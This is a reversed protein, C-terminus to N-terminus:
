KLRSNLIVNSGATGALLAPPADLYSFETEIVESLALDTVDLYATAAAACISNFQGGNYTRTAM